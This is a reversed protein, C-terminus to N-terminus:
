KRVGRGKGRNEEAELRRRVEKKLDDTLKRMRVWSDAWPRGHEDVGEWQVKVDIRRGRGRFRIVEVLFPRYLRDRSLRCVRPREAFEAAVSFRTLQSHLCIILPPSRLFCAPLRCRGHTLPVHRMLPSLAVAERLRARRAPVRRSHRLDSFRQRVYGRKQAM